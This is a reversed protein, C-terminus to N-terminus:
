LFYILMVFQKFTCTTAVTTDLIIDSPLTGMYNLQYNNWKLLFDILADLEDKWLDMHVMLKIGQINHKLM